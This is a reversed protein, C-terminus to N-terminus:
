QVNPKGYGYGMNHISNGVSTVFGVLMYSKSPNQRCKKFSLEDFVDIITMVYAYSCPATSALGVGLLKSIAEIAQLSLCAKKVEPSM